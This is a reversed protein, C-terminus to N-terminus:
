RHFRFSACVKYAVRDCVAADFASRSTTWRRSPKRAPDAPTATAVVVSSVTRDLYLEEKASSPGPLGIGAGEIYGRSEYDALTTRDAVIGLM